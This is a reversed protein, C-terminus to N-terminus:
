SADREIVMMVSPTGTANTVEVSLEEGEFCLFSIPAVDNTSPFKGVTGGTGVKGSAVTRDGSTITFSVATTTAIILIGVATIVEVSHALKSKRGTIDDTGLMEKTGAAAFLVERQEQM